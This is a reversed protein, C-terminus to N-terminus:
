GDKQSSELLVLGWFAVFYVVAGAVWVVSALMMSQELAGPGFIGITALVVAGIGGQVAALSRIHKLQRESPGTPGVSWPLWGARPLVAWAALLLGVSPVGLLLLPFLAHEPANWAALVPISGLWLCWFWLSGQIFNKAASGLPQATSENDAM